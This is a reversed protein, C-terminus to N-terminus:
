DHSSELFRQAMYIPVMALRDTGPDSPMSKKDLVFESTNTSPDERRASAAVRSSM